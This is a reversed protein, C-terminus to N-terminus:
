QEAIARAVVRMASHIRSPSVCAFGLVFGFRPPGLYYRSLPYLSVRSRACREAIAYEDLPRRLYVTLHMGGESDGVEVDQAVTQLAELLAQRRRDYEVLLQRLHTALHGDRIFEALAMQTHGPTFADLSFKAGVFPDVLSAPVILYALRLGPFLMKNFSGTYIVRGAADLAQLAALPRGRYRFDGDYDDELIWGNEQEAWATLAVRRLPPMLGGSPYQQSPTIYALRAVAHRARAAELDFGQRDVPVPILNAGAARFLRAAPQYTPDEVWVAEGPEVLVRVTLDIAQHGSSVVIVQQPTCVVGRTGAVHAAIAERLEPLGATPGYAWGTMGPRRLARAVLRAWLQRPFLELAPLSPTFANGVRADPMGRFSSLVSGRLSIRAPSGRRPKPVPVRPRQERSPIEQAVYTGSGRKRVLFGAAQLRTFAWEVTHRSVKLDRSLVRSSPLRSGPALNGSLIASRLRAEVRVVLPQSRDQDQEGLDQILVSGPRRVM